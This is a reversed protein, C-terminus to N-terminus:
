RTWSGWDFPRAKWRHRAYNAIITSKGEGLVPAGSGVAPVAAKNFYSFLQGQLTTAEFVIGVGYCCQKLIHLSAHPPHPSKCLLPPCVSFVREIIVANM